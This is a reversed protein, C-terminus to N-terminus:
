RMSAPFAELEFEGNEDPHYAKGKYNSVVENYFELVLDTGDFAKGKEEWQKMHETMFRVIYKKFVECPFEYRYRVTDKACEKEIAEDAFEVYRWDKKTQVVCMEAENTGFFNFLVSLYGSKKTTFHTILKYDLWDYDDLILQTHTEERNKEDFILEKKSIEKLVGRLM